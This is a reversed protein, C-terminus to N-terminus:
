VRRLRRHTLYWKGLIALVAVVIVLLIGHEIHQIVRVVYDLQDGFYYVAGIIAPVSILAAMGDYFLFVRYPLHLTGASFFIPARLGPMFRAAFILKNGRQHFKQRVAQLREDPLIKHFFWKKTLKRGYVAGLFFITSDGILVGAMAIVIMVWLQTLGYYSLLGAAFLIIDEPLPVGLGCGILIAFVLMYPTPGYFNLLFDVLRDM